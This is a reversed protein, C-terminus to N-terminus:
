VVGARLSAFSSSLTGKDCQGKPSPTSASPRSRALRDSAPPTARDHKAESAGLSREIDSQSLGEGTEALTEDWDGWQHIADGSDANPFRPNESVEDITETDETADHDDDSCHKGGDGYDGEDFDNELVYGDQSNSNATDEFDYDDEDNDDDDDDDDGSERSVDGSEDDTSNFISDLFKSGGEFGGGHGGEDIPQTQDIVGDDGEAVHQEDFHMANVEPADGIRTTDAYLGNQSVEDGAADATSEQNTVVPEDAADPVEGAGVVTTTSETHIPATEALLDLRDAMATLDDLENGLGGFLDDGGAEFGGAAAAELDDVDLDISGLDFPGDDVRTDTTTGDPISNGSANEAGGVGSEMVGVFIDSGGFLDAPGGAADLAGGVDGKRAQYDVDEAEWADPDEEDDLLYRLRKDPTKPLPTAGKKVAEPAPPEKKPEPKAPSVLSPDPPVLPEAKSRRLVYLVAMVGIWSAAALLASYTWEM